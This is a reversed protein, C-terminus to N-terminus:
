THAQYASHIHLNFAHRAYTLFAKVVISQMEIRNHKVNTWIHAKGYHVSTKRSLNYTLSGQVQM